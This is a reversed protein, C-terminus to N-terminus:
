GILPMSSRSAPMTRAHACCRPWSAFPTKARVIERRRLAGGAGTALFVKRPPNDAQSGQHAGPCATEVIAPRREEAGRQSVQPRESEDTQSSLGHAYGEIMQELMKATTVGPLDSGRARWRWHCDLASSITFPIGSSPKTSTVFRYKSADKPMLLRVLIARTATVAFGSRLARRYRGGNKPKLGSTSNLPAGAFM